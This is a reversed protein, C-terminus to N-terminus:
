ESLDVDNFDANNNNQLQVTNHSIEGAMAIMYSNLKKLGPEERQLNNPIWDAFFSQRMNTKNEEPLVLINDQSKKKLAAFDISKTM